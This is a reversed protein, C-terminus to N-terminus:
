MEGKEYPPMWDPHKLREAENHLKAWELAASIEEASVGPASHVMAFSPGLDPLTNQLGEKGEKNLPTQDQLAALAEQAVQSCSEPHLTMFDNLKSGAIRELADRAKALKHEAEEARTQERLIVTQDYLLAKRAEALQRETEESGRAEEEFERAWADACDKAERVERELAKIRDEYATTISTLVDSM